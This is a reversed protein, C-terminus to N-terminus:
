NSPAELEDDTDLSDSSDECDWGDPCETHCESKRGNKKFCTLGEDCCTTEGRGKKGGCREGEAACVEEEEVKRYCTTPDTYSLEVHHIECKTNETDLPLTYEVAVCPTPPVLGVSALAAAGDGEAADLAYVLQLLVAFLGDDVEAVDPFFTAWEINELTVDPDEYVLVAVEGAKTLDDEYVTQGFMEGYSPNLCADQCEELSGVGGAVVSFTGAYSGSENPELTRCGGEGLLEFSVQDDGLVYCVQGSSYELEVYHIECKGNGTQMNTSTEIGVCGPTELCREQCDELSVETEECMLYGDPCTPPTGPVLEGTNCGIYSPYCDYDGFVKAAQPARCAGSGVLEFSDAPDESSSSDRKGGRKANALLGTFAFALM